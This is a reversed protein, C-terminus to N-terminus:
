KKKLFKKLPIYCVSFMLFMIMNEVEMFLFTEFNETFFDKDPGKIINEIDNEFGSLWKTQAYICICM